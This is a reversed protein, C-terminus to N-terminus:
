RNRISGDRNETPKIETNLNVTQGDSQKALEQIRKYREVEALDKELQKQEKTKLKLDNKFGIIQQFTPIIEFGRGRVANGVIVFLVAIVTWKWELPLNYYETLDYYRDVGLLITAAVGAFTWKNAIFVFYLIKKFM